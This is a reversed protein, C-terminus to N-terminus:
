DKLKRPGSTRPPTPPWFSGRARNWVGRAFKCRNGAQELSPNQKGLAAEPFCAKPHRWDEM